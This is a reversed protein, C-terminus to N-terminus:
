KSDSNQYLNSLKGDIKADCIRGNQSNHLTTCPCNNKKILENIQQNVGNGVYFGAIGLTTLLTVSTLVAPVTVPASATLAVVTIIGAGIALGAGVGAYVPPPVKTLATWFDVSVKSEKECHKSGSTLLSFNPSYSKGVDRRIM